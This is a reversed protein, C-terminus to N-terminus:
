MTM